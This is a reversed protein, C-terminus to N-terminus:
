HVSQKLEEIKKMLAEITACSEADADKWTLRVMESEDNPCFEKDTSANIGVAGDSARLVRKHPRFSCQTCRLEGPVYQAEELEMLRAELQISYAKLKEIEAQAEENLLAMGNETWELPQLVNLAHGSVNWNDIHPQNMTESYAQEIITAARSPATAAVVFYKRRNHTEEKLNYTLIVQYLRWYGFDLPKSVRQSLKESEPIEEVLRRYAQSAAILQASGYLSFRMSFHQGESEGFVHIEGCDACIDAHTRGDPGLSGTILLTRNHKCDYSM